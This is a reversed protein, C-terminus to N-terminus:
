QIHVNSRLAQAARESVCLVKGNLRTVKEFGEKCVVNKVSVNKKIQQLPTPPPNYVKKTLEKPIEKGTVKIGNFFVNTHGNNKADMTDVIIDSSELPKTIAFSIEISTRYSDIGTAKVKVNKLMSNSDTVSSTQTVDSGSTQSKLTATFPQLFSVTAYRSIKQDDTYKGVSVSAKSLYTTGSNEYAVLNVTVMNGTKVVTTPIEQTNEAVNFSRGNITFGNDVIQQGTYLLGITPAECDVRCGTDAYINSTLLSISALSIVTLMM